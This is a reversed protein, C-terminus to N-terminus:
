SGVLSVYYEVCPEDWHTLKKNNYIDQIGNVNKHNKVLSFHMSLWQRHCM